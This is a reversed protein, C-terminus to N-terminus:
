RTAGGPKRAAAAARRPLPGPDCLLRPPGGLDCPRGEVQGKEVQSRRALSSLSTVAPALSTAAPRCADTRDGAASTGDLYGPQGVADLQKALVLAGAVALRGRQHAQRVALDDMPPRRGPARIATVPQTSQTM